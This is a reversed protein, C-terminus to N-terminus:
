GYTTATLRPEILPLPMQGPLQQWEVTTLNLTWYDVLRQVFGNNPDEWEGGALLVHGSTLFKLIFLQREIYDRLPHQSNHFSVVTGCQGKLRGM